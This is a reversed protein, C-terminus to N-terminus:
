KGGTKRSIDCQIQGQHGGGHVRHSFGAESNCNRLFAADADDVFVECRLLLRSLHGLDLAILGADQTIRHHNGGVMRNALDHTQRLLQTHGAKRHTIAALHNTQNGPPIQTKLGAVVQRHAVDHSGAVLQHGHGVAGRQGLGFHKQVLVLNLAQQHHIIGKLELAQDCDFVNGLLGTERIRCAVGLALQADTRGDPHALPSFLADLRQNAGANIGDHDVGCMAVAFTDNLAHAPHLLVVRMHVHNAAVDGRARGRQRQNLRAGVSDLDSNAGAGDACGSDDCTHTHRM